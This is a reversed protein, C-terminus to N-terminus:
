RLGSRRELLWGALFLGGGLALGQFEAGMSALGEEGLGLRVSLFLGALIVLLGLAELLKAFMWIKNTGM